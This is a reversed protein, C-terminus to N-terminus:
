FTRFGHANVIFQYYGADQLLPERKRKITNKWLLQFGGSLRAGHLLTYMRKQAADITTYGVAPDDYIWGVIPVLLSTFGTPMDVAEGTPIDDAEYIVCVPNLRGTTKNKFAQAVQIRNLGQGGLDDFLHVGGTLIAALTADANCITEMQQGYTSTTM